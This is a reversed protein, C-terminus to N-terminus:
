PKNKGIKKMLYIRFFPSISDETLLLDLRNSVGV